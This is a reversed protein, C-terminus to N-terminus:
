TVSVSFHSCPDIDLNHNYLFFFEYDAWMYQYMMVKQFSFKESKGNIMESLQSNQTIVHVSPMFSHGRNIYVTISEYIAELVNIM